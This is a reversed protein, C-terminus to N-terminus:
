RPQGLGRHLVRYDVLQWGNGQFRGYVMPQDARAALTVGDLAVQWLSSREVGLIYTEFLISTPNERSWGLLLSHTYAVAQPSLLRVGTDDWVLARDTIESSGFWGVVQRALLQRGNASWSVPVLAWIQGPEVVTPQGVPRLAIPSTEGLRRIYLTSTVRTRTYDQPHAFVQVQSFAAYRGDPSRLVPSQVTGRMPQRRQQAQTQIGWVWRWPMPYASQLPDEPVWAPVPLSLPRPHATAPSTELQAFGLLLLLVITVGQITWVRHHGKRGPM